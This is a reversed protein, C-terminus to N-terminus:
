RTDRDERILRAVEEDPIKDLLESFKELRTDIEELIRRKVAEELAKRIIPGPRIGYRRMAEVVKRPIKASVTLHRSM